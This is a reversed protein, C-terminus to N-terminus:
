KMKYSTMIRKSSHDFKNTCVNTLKVYKIYRIEISKCLKNQMHIDVFNVLVSWFTSQFCKYLELM